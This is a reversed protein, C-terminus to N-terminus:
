AKKHADNTMNEAEKIFEAKEKSILEDLNNHVKDYTASAEVVIFNLFFICSVYLNLM